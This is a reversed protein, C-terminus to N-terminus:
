RKMRFITEKSTCFSKLKIADRKNIRKKRQQAIPTRTLLNNGAVIEELTKGMRKQLPKLTEPTINLGKTWQPNIKIYPSM